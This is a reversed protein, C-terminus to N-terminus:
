SEEIDTGQEGERRRDVVSGLSSSSGVDKLESRKPNCLDIGDSPGEEGSTSM